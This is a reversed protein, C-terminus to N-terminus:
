VMSYELLLAGKPLMGQLDALSPPSREKLFKRMLGGLAGMHRKYSSLAGLEILQVFLSTSCLWLCSQFGLKSLM